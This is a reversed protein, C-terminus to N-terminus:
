GGVLKAIEEEDLEPNAVKVAKVSVRSDGRRVALAIAAKMEGWNEYVKQCVHKEFALAKQKSLFESLVCAALAIGVNMCDGQAIASHIRRGPPVFGELSSLTWLCYAASGLHTATGLPAGSAVAFTLLILEKQSLKQQQKNM